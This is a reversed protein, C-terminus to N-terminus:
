SSSLAALKDAREYTDRSLPALAKEILGRYEGILARELRRVRAYGFPDLATGRLRRLRVLLRFVGDFWRGFPIKRKWGLTRLANTFGTKGSGFDRIDIGRTLRGMILGSPVSGSLYGAAAVVPFAWVESV